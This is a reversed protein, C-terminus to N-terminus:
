PFSARREMRSWHQGTWRDLYIGNQRFQVRIAGSGVTSMVRSGAKSLRELVDAHPHGFPNGSGASIMAIDPQFISLLDEGTSTISGHHGVKLIRVNDAHGEDLLPKWAELIAHESKQEADGTMLLRIGPLAALVVLSAENERGPKRPHLVFYRVPWSSPLRDGAQVLSSFDNKWATFVHQMPIRDLLFAAGGAHDQDAHSLVMDVDPYGRRSLFQEVISGSRAGSGTDVVLGRNNQWEIVLADGQGVDLMTISLKVMTSQSFYLTTGLLFIVPTVRIWPRHPNALMFWLTALLVGSISWWTAAGSVLLPNWGSATTSAIWALSDFGLTALVAVADGGFPLILATFAALLSFSALPIALPSAFLTGLPVWGIHWLLFPTTAMSAALTMRIAGAVPHSRTTRTAAPRALCIGGVAAFSLQAGLDFLAAPRIILIIVLSVVWGRALWGDRGTLRSTWGVVMMLIARSVSPPWDLLWGYAFGILAIAATMITQRWQVTMSTRLICGRLLLLIAGCLVGVHLGSVALLHSLGSRRFISLEEEELSDRHGLVMAQVVRATRDPFLDNIRSQIALQMRQSYGHADRATRSQRGRPRIVRTVSVDSVVASVGERALWAPVDMEGPNLPRRAARYTGRLIVTDGVFMRGRAWGPPWEIRILHGDPSGPLGGTQLLTVGDNRVVQGGVAVTGAPAHELQCLRAIRVHAGVWGSLLTLIVWGARLLRQNARGICLLVPILVSGALGVAIVMRFPLHAGPAVHPSVLTTAVMATLLLGAFM